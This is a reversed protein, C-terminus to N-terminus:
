VSKNNALTKTKRRVRLTLNSSVLKSITASVAGPSCTKITGWIKRAGLVKVKPRTVMSSSASNSVSKKSAPLHSVAGRGNAQGATSSVAASPLSERVTSAYSRNQRGPIKSSLQSVQQSLSDMADRLSVLENELVRYKARYELSLNLEEMLKTVEEKLSRNTCSLCHFPEESNSLDEYLKPPISTCGRHYWLGCQGECFLAEDKGDTIQSLCVGCSVRVRKAKSM